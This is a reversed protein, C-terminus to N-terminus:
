NEWVKHDALLAIYVCCTFLILIISVIGVNCEIVLAVQIRIVFCNSFNNTSNECKM